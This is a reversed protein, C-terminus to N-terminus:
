PLCGIKYTWMQCKTRTTDNYSVGVPKLLGVMVTKGKAAWITERRPQSWENRLAKRQLLGM